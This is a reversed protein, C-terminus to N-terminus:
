AGYRGAGTSVCADARMHAYLGTLQVRVTIIGMAVRAPVAAPNIWFGSYSLLVFTTSLVLYGTSYEWPKRKLTLYAKANSFNRSGKGYDFTVVKNEAIVGTLEWMDPQIQVKEWGDLAPVGAKWQLSVHKMSQSYLGIEYPCVHRDFPLNVFHM